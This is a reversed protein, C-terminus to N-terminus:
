VSMRFIETYADVMRNRIQVALDFSLSEMEVAMVTDHLDRESGVALDGVAQDAQGQADTLGALMREFGGAEAGSAARSAGSAAGSGISGISGIGGTIGQMVM